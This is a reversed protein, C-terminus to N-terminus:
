IVEIHTHKIDSDPFKMNYYEEVEKKLNYFESMKEFLVKGCKKCKACYAKYIKFYEKGDVITTIKVERTSFSNLYDKHWCSTCKVGGKFKFM